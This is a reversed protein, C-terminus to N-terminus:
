VTAGAGDEARGAYLAVAAAGAVTGTGVALTGEGDCAAEL